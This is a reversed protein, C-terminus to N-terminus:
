VRKSVSKETWALWLWMNEWYACFFPSFFCHDFRNLPRSHATSGITLIWSTTSILSNHIIASKPNTPGVGIWLAVGRRLWENNRWHGQGQRSIDHATYRMHPTTICSHNHGSLLGNIILIGSSSVISPLHQSLTASTPGVNFWSQIRRRKSRKSVSHPPPTNNLLVKNLLGKVDENYTPQWSSQYRAYYM